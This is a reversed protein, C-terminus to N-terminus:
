SVSLNDKEKQITQDQVKSSCANVFHRFINLQDDHVDAMMEPHWQTGMIFRDEKFEIAEIIGEESYAVPNFKDSVAKIAQHHYSNVRLSSKGAIRRFRSNEEITVKHVPHFKPAAVFFHSPLKDMELDQHLTGGFAVNLLQHGRCIGLVPIQTNEVAEVAVAIDQVDRSPVITGIVDKFTEGYHQPDIDNGGSIILGDIRRVIEIATETDKYLPILVPIGGALEVATVYDNALLQWEQLPGGIKERIGIGDDYSYNVTIGIIPKM